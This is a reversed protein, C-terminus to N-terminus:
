GLAAAAFPLIVRAWEAYMAGSPHLGDLTILDPESAARRSVPTVDVFRAGRREVEDRAMANFQDIEASIRGRDRDHAFPTAGWDPISVVIVHERRGDALALARDLVIQYNRHFEAVNRGRYQDNVGILLTVLDYRGSLDAAAIGALLDDTTWGTRAVIIPAAIGIGRANLMAALREPWRDDPQVAEGITYSDGLALFRTVPRLHPEATV